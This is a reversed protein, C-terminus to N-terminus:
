AFHRPRARQRDVPDVQGFSPLRPGRDSTIWVLAARRGWPNSRGPGVEMPIASGSASRSRTHSFFRRSTGATDHRGVAEVDVAATGSARRRPHPPRPAIKAFKSTCGAHARDHQVAITQWGRCVHSRPCEDPAFLRRDDVVAATGGSMCRRSWCARRLPKGPDAHRRTASLSAVRWAHRSRRPHLRSSKASSRCNGSSTLGTCIAHSM